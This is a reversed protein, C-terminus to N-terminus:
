FYFMLFINGGTVTNLRTHKARGGGNGWSSNRLTEERVNGNAADWEETTVESQRVSEFAFRLNLEGGISMQPAFFYEVGAFAGLGFTFTPDSKDELIRQTGGIINSGFNETSPMTNLATMPNAYEYTNMDRGLGLGLEGGYFGQLRGHGRRFEYGAWLEVDYGGDKMVDVVTANVNLPDNAITEDDTVVGKFTQRRFNMHLSARIAEKDNKWFYKGYITNNIGEFTPAQNNGAMSFFNGAYELFPTAEIGIAFDGKQPLLAVGRKNLVPASTSGEQAQAAFAVGVCLSLLMIAKKM